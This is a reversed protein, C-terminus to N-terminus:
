HTGGSASVYRAEFVCLTNSVLVANALWSPCCAGNMIQDYAGSRCM